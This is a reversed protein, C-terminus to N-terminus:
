QMKNKQSKLVKLQKIYEKIYGITTIIQMFMTLYLAFHIIKRDVEVLYSLYCLVVSADLVVTKAKGILSSKPNNGKFKSYMNIISILIEFFLVIIFREKTLSFIPLIVCVTFLKDCITDLLAGFESVVNYKRAFWGDICDTFASIAIIIFAFEINKIITAIIMLIPALTGRILTLLNPIQRRVRDKDKSVVDKFIKALELRYDM